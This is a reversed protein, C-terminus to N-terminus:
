WSSTPATGWKPQIQSGKEGPLGVLYKMEKTSDLGNVQLLVPALGQLGEARMYLASLHGDEYPIQV